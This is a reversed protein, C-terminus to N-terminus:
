SGERAAAQRNATLVAPVGTLVLWVYQSGYSRSFAISLAVFWSLGFMFELDGRWRERAYARTIRILAAAYLVVFLAFPGLGYEEWFALWNHIYQGERGDLAEDMFHGLLWVKKLRAEGETFLEARGVVSVDSAIDSFDFRALTV